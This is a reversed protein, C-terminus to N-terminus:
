YPKILESSYVKFSTTRQAVDAEYKIKPFTSVKAFLCGGVSSSKQLAVDYRRFKTLVCPSSPMLSVPSHLDNRLLRKSNAQAGSEEM